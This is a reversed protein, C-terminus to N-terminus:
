GYLGMIECDIWSLFQYLRGGSIDLGHWNKNRIMIENIGTAILRPSM